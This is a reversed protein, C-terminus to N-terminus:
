HHEWFRGLCSVMKKEEAGTLPVSQEPAMGVPFILGTNCGELGDNAGGCCCCGCRFSISLTFSIMLFKNLKFCPPFPLM